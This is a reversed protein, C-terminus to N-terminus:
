LTEEIKEVKYKEVEDMTPMSTQAGMRTVAIGAAINATKIAKDLSRGAALVSALAGNFADGAATTDVPNVRIAPFLQSHEPEVLLAGTEGMTVIVKGVGRSILIQGAQVAADVSDIKRGTLLELESENPIIYDLLMYLKVPLERAPAPNLIFTRQYKRALEATMQVADVPIELQTLVVSVEGFISEHMSIDGPCLAMNSGSIVIIENEGQADVTILATGTKLKEDILLCSLDVGDRTMNEVLANHFSDNGMKGIFYTKGGMKASAVAQNAGKGGPFMEFREGLITEGPNPFREAVIVLDMNASGVVLVGDNEM